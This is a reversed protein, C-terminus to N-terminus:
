HVKGLIINQITLLSLKGLWCRAIKLSPFYLDSMTDANEFALSNFVRAKLNVTYSINFQSHKM